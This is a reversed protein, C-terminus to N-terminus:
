LMQKVDTVIDEVQPILMQGIKQSRLLTVNKGGIRRIPSKMVKLAEPAAEMFRFAIEGAVGGRKMSEHVILLRGTKKVSKVVTDIDMPVLTRLDVVEVSIGEKELEEAAELAKRVMISYTVITIDTGERKIDAEGFPITYEEVPIAEKKGFYLNTHPIFVVPEDDRIATKLLGKADYATSPMVVKLGPCHMLIAEPSLAHDAGIGVGTGGMVPAYLVVPLHGYWGWEQRNCGLKLFVQDGACMIMSAFMLVAIPRYGTMGAGYAMGVMAEETIPTDRIRDAGFEEFIGKSETFAGGMSVLDEGFMIVKPDRQMEEKFAQNVADVYRIVQTEAAM